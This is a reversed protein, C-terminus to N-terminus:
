IKIIEGKIYITDVEINRNFIIRTTDRENVTVNQKSTYMGYLLWVGFVFGLCFIFICAFIKEVIKM